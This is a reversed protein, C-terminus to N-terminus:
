TLKKIKTLKGEFLHKGVQFRFLENSKEAGEMLLGNETLVEQVVEEILKDSLLFIESESLEDLVCEIKKLEVMELLTGGLEEVSEKM